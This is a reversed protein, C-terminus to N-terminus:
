FSLMLELLPLIAENEHSQQDTREAQTSVGSQANTEIPSRKPRLSIHKKEDIDQNAGREVASCLTNYCQEFVCRITKWAYCSKAVNNFQSGELPDYVIIQDMTFIGTIPDYYGGSAKPIFPSLQNVPSPYYAKSKENHKVRRNDPHHSGGVDVCTTQADFHQGYFLMFHMLLKGATAEGSCLVELVDNSGQPFLGSTNVDLSSQNTNEEVLKEEEEIKEVTEAHSLCIENTCKSSHIIQESTSESPNIMMQSENVVKKAISAWSSRSVEHSKVNLSNVQNGSDNGPVASKKHQLKEDSKKDVGEAKNIRGLLTSSYKKNSLWVNQTGEDKSIDNSSVRSSPFLTQSKCIITSEEQCPITRTGAVVDMRQQEVREMEARITRREKMVAVVLLLIAYSSLGGSFPENLRRQALLEKIILVVQVAPTDEPSLGTENCAKQVIQASYATSGLGGHEQGEFTIDLSILGNMVDAGRWPPIVHYPRPPSQSNIGVVPTHHGTAGSQQGTAFYKGQCSTDEETEEKPQTHFPVTPTSGVFPITAAAPAIHQQHMLWEVGATAGPLRSPDALIKIVPVSATPIAKVQVAWSQQELEASLRLLRSGNRSLPPYFQNYHGGHQSHQHSNSSCQQDDVPTPKQLSSSQVQEDNSNSVIFDKEHQSDKKLHNVKSNMCNQNSSGIESGNDIGCIVVDLDSSPLDLQTACSGYM